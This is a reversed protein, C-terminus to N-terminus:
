RICNLYVLFGSGAFIIGAAVAHKRFAKTRVAEQWSSLKTTPLSAPRIRWPLILSVAAVYETHRNGYRKRLYREELAIENAHMWLTPACLAMGVTIPRCMSVFAALYLFTSLYRPHRLWAYPGTTILNENVLREKSALAWLRLSFAAIVLILAVICSSGHDFLLYGTM